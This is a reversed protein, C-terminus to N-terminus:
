RQNEKIKNYGSCINKAVSGDKIDCRKNKNFIKQLVRKKSM